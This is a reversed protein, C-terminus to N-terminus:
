RTLEHNEYDLGFLDECRTDLQSDLPDLLHGKTDREWAIRKRIDFRAIIRRLAALADEFSHCLASGDNPAQVYYPLYELLQFWAKRACRFVDAPTYGDVPVGSQVLMALWHGGTASGPFGPEVRLVYGYWWNGVDSILVLLEKDQHCSNIGNELFVARQGALIGLRCEPNDRVALLATHTPGPAPFQKVRSRIM